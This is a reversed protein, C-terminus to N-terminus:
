KKVAACVEKEARLWIDWDKGSPKGEVEWIYYAKKQIEECLTGSTCVPGAQKSLVKSTNKAM